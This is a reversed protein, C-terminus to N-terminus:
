PRGICRYEFGQARVDAPNWINRGDFLVPHRMRQLVQGFDAARFENWETVLLLADAGQVADMPRDAFTIKDGLIRRAEHMSEPDYATVKAGAALLERIVVLSPAERMDDTEPKFSLGWLAFTRGTLDAGFREKVMDSLVSKQRDNVDEVATVVKMEMGFEKATEM